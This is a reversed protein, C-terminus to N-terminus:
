MSKGIIFTNEWGLYVNKIEMGNTLKNFVQDVCFPTAIKDDASLDLTCENNENSGFLFHKNKNSKAFSHNAGCKIGVIVHQKLIQIPQGKNEFGPDGCQGYKNDGFAFLRGADDRLLNHDYGCQIEIIKIRINHMRIKYISKNQRCHKPSKSIQYSDNNGCGYLGGESDLFLSHHQGCSVQIIDAQIESSFFQILKWNKLKLDLKPHGSQGYQYFEGPVGTSYIKYCGRWTNILFLLDNPIYNNNIKYKRIWFSLIKLNANSDNCLAISHYEGGQIDIVHELHPVSVPTRINTKNGIGLQYHDNRGCVYLRNDTGIIFTSDSATNTHITKIKISENKHINCQGYYKNGKAIHDHHNTIFITHRLGNVIQQMSAKSSKNDLTGNYEKLKTIHSDHNLGLEGYRNYGVVFLKASM